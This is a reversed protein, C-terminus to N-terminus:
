NFDLYEALDMGEDSVLEVLEDPSTFSTDNLLSQADAFSHEYGEEITNTDQGFNSSFAEAYNM